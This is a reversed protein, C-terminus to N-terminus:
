SNSLLHRTYRTEDGCLESGEQPRHFFLDQLIYDPFAGVSTGHSGSATWASPSHQCSPLDHNSKNTKLFACEISLVVNM